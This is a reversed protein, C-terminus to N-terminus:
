TEYHYFQHNLNVMGLLLLVALAHHAVANFLPLLALVNMIGLFIQTALLIALVFILRRIYLFHFYRYTQFFLSYLVIATVCAGIRHFMHITIGATNRAAFLNFAQKLDIGNPFYQGSFCAPFDLCVFAAYNASTWGGLFLQLILIMLGFTSTIKFVTLTTKPLPPKINEVAAVTLKTKLKKKFFSFSCPKLMLSLWYLLSVITLGGLLHAMVVLPFLKLTVTWMGLLAQFIVLGMLLCTIRLIKPNAQLFTTKKLRFFRFSLFFILLGLFGAIYRHAMETWAKKLNFGPINAIEPHKTQLENSLILQGYCGPWDPCGLGADTLRTYAGLVAVCFAFITTLLVLKYLQESLQLRESILPEAPIAVKTSSLTANLSTHSLTHITM